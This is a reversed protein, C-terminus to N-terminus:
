RRYWNYIGYVNIILYGVALVVPWWVKTLISGAIMFLASVIWIPWAIRLKRTILVAGTLNGAVGILGLIEGLLNSM